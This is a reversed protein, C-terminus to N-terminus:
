GMWSTITTSGATSPLGARRSCIVASGSRVAALTGGDPITTTSMSTPASELEAGRLAFLAAKGGQRQADVAELVDM